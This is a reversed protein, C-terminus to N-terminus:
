IVRCARSSSVTADRTIRALYPVSRVDTILKGGPRRRMEVAGISFGCKVEFCQGQGTAVVGDRHRRGPPEEEDRRAEDDHAAEKASQIQPEHAERRVLEIYFECRAPRECGARM